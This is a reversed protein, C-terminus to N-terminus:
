VASFASISIHEACALPQWWETHDRFCEPDNHAQQPNGSFEFEIIIVGPRHVEPNINSSHCDAGYRHCSM